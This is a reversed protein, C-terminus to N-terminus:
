EIHMVSSYIFHFVGPRTEGRSVEQIREIGDAVAEEQCARVQLGHPIAQILDLRMFIADVAAM